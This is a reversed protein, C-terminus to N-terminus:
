SQSHRLRAIWLKEAMITSGDYRSKIEVMAKDADGPQVFWQLLEVKKIGEGIDAYPLSHHTDNQTTNTSTSFYQGCKLQQEPVLMM